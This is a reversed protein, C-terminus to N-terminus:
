YHHLPVRQIMQIVLLRLLANLNMSHIKNQGYCFGDDFNHTAIAVTFDDIITKNVPAAGLLIRNGIDGTYNGLLLQVLKGSSISHLWKPVAHSALDAYGTDHLLGLLGLIFQSQQTNTNYNYVMGYAVEDVQYLDIAWQMVRVSHDTGHSVYQPPNTLTQNVLLKMVTLLFTDKDEHSVEVSIGGYLQLFLSVSQDRGDGLLEFLFNATQNCVYDETVNYDKFISCDPTDMAFENRKEVIGELDKMINKELRYAEKILDNFKEDNYHLDNSRQKLYSLKEQKSSVISTAGLDKAQFLQFEIRHLLSGLQFKKQIISERTAFSLHFLTIFLVFGIIL